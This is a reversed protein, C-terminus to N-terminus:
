GLERFFKAPQVGLRAVHDIQVYVRQALIHWPTQDSDPSGSLQIWDAAQAM